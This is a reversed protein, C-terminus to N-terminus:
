KKRAFFSAAAGSLAIAVLLIFIRRYAASPATTDLWQGYLAELFFDPTFAAISVMGAATGMLEDPIGVEGALSFVVGHLMVVILGILLSFAILLAPTAQTQVLMLVALLVAALAFLIAFYNCRSRFLRDAALGSLPTIAYCAYSRVLAIYASQECTIHATQVLWPTFYSISVYLAYAAFMIFALSWLGKNRLLWGACASGSYSVRMLQPSRREPAPLVLAALVTLAALAAAITLVLSFFAHNADELCHAIRLGSIALVASALGNAMYYIGFRLGQNQENGGRIVLVLAPWFVFATTISYCFWICIVLAFPIIMREYLMFALIFNICSTAALSLVICKKPSFRDAILGGPIYLLANVLSYVTSLIGLEKNNLAFAERMWDYAIYRIYPMMYIIGGAAGLTILVRQNM